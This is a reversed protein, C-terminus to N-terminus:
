VALAEVEDRAVAQEGGHDRAREVGPHQEQAVVARM